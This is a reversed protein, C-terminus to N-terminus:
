INKQKGEEVSWDTAINKDTVNAMNRQPTGGFMPWSSQTTASDQPFAFAYCVSHSYLASGLSYIAITSRQSPGKGLVRDRMEELLSQRPLDFYDVEEVVLDGSDSTYMWSIPLKSRDPPALALAVCLLSVGICLLVLALLYVKWFRLSKQFFSVNKM